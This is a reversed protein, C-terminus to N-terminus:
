QVASPTDSKLAARKSSNRIQTAKYDLDYLFNLEIVEISARADDRTLAQLEHVADNGALRFDHLAEILNLSPLFKILGSIRDKLDRGAVGKDKCVAEILARLGITCLLLCDSNFCTVVEGYLLSLEPKLNRFRKRQISDKERPPFYGFAFEEWEENDSSPPGMQWELTPATCGACSWLSYRHEHFGFVEEDFDDYIQELFLNRTRLLHNTLGKCTNCFIRKTEQPGDSL